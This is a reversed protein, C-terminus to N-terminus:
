GGTVIQEGYNAKEGAVRIKVGVQELRDVLERVSWNGALWDKGSMAAQLQGLTIQIFQPVDNVVAWSGIAVPPCVPVWQLLEVGKPMPRPESQATVELAVAYPDPHCRGCVYGGTPRRPYTRSGCTYCSDVPPEEDEERYTLGGPRDLLHCVEDRHQRLQEVIEVVRPDDSDPLAAKLRSGELRLRIGVSEARRLINQVPTSM